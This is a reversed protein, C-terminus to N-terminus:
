QDSIAYSIPLVESTLNVPTEKSDKHSTGVNLSLAVGTTGLYTTDTSQFKLDNSGAYTKTDDQLSTIQTVILNIVISIGVGLLLVKKVFDKIESRLVMSYFNSISLSTVKQNFRFFGKYNLDFRLHKV